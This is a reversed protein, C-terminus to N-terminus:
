ALKTARKASSYRRPISHELAMVFGNTSAHKPFNTSTHIWVYDFLSSDMFQSSRDKLEYYIRVVAACSYRGLKSAVRFTRNCTCVM